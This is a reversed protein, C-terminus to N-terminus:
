GLVKRKMWSLARGGISFLLSRVYDILIGAGFLLVTCCVLELFFFGLGEGGAPNVLEKLWGYWVNRIDIHEHFLYVGFSLTGLKRIVAACKGEKINLKSFCYFLGVAGTLCLVFNYHFPVTFYYGLGDWKQVAFWLVLVVLFTLLSSGAYVLTSYRKFRELGYLRMYAGLLYVCIFWTLDYGYRDVPFAVPSISKIGSFLVMLCVLSIKLQKQTMQKAGANLIPSLLYLMFYATAFWYTESQIPFLYKVLGYVGLEQLQTPIGVALAVALIVLGYFWIRCLLDIVKGIKFEAYVGFYGSILVYVNVAVICFSELLTGAIRAASGDEGPLLLSDSHSLFHLIVVMVMAIVRLLEYNTYRKKEAM